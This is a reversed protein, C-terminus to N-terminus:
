SPKQSLAAGPNTALVQLAVAVDDIVEPWAGSRAQRFLRMGPYWPSDPRETLWRWDTRYDPLMLWCPVGMAGALHAVATDVSIVLDLNAILAATDDFDAIHPALDTLAPDLPAAGKQLSFFRAGDVALLPALLDLSALSRDSDNEFRPNGQWALGVRLPGRILPACRAAKAPDAHLYPFVAAITDVRTGLVFPFSMPPTWYDWGTRPVDEDFGFVTDVGALRTFLTKLGPHCVITVSAAGMTKAVGAYRCFQIMDGHGGEFGIVLRKGHLPGGRWRPLDFHAALRAYWDRAEFARWGEDFRGQRLLLYALNFPANKYAPALAMATRYCHEAEAERQLCALLVGLNSWAAPADPDIALAQRYAHEAEKFRKQAALLVGLHLHAQYEGPDLALATRYHHEAETVADPALLLGLNIHAAVLYPALELTARFAAQAGARDGERMLRVGRHFLADFAPLDTM